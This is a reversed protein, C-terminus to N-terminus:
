NCCPACHGCRRHCRHKCCVPECCCPKCCCTSCCSDCCAPACCTQVPVRKEVTRCVMRCCTVTEQHPVCVAVTRTAQFPVLRKCWATYSETRCEPVCKYCTVQCTEERVEHRYCTVRCVVPRCECVRRMCTVPVEEWVPCPVWHKVTKTRVCCPECDCCCRRRFCRKIRDCLTPGCPVECCEWHGHDVCRRVITTEPKCTVFTQMVTREQVYPVCVCVKRVVTQVEPVMKNVVCTRTRTEPVCECRYATYAEQRCETRYVTRTCPYTEPVWEHCCVTQYQPTSDAPAPAGPAPPAADDARATCAAAALLGGALLAVCLQRM